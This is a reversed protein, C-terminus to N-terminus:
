TEVLRGDITGMVQQHDRQDEKVSFLGGAAPFGFSLNPSFCFLRCFSVLLFLLFFVAAWPNRSLFPTTCVCLKQKGNGFFFVFVCLGLSVAPAHRPSQRRIIDNNRGHQPRVPPLLASQPFRLIWIGTSIGTQRQCIHIKQVHSPFFRKVTEMM